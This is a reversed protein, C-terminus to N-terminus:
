NDAYCQGYSNSYGITYFQRHRYGYGYAYSNGYADTYINTVSNSNTVAVRRCCPYRSSGLWCCQKAPWAHRM